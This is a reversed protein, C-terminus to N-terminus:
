IDDYECIIGLDFLGTMGERGCADHVRVDRDKVGGTNGIQEIEDKLFILPHRFYELQEPQMPEPQM